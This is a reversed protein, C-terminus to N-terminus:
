LCRGISSLKFEKKKDKKEPKKNSPEITDIGMSRLLEKM